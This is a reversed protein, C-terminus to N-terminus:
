KTTTVWVKMESNKSDEVVRVNNAATNRWGGESDPKSISPDVTGLPHGGKGSGHLRQQVPTDVLGHVRATLLKHQLRSARCLRGRSQDGSFSAARPHSQVHTLLESLCQRWFRVPGAACPMQSQTTSPPLHLLKVKVKPSLDGCM